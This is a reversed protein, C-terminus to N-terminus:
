VRPDMEDVPGHVVLELREAPRYRGAAHHLVRGALNPIRGEAIGFTAELARIVGGHSVVLVVAGTFTAVVEDLAALARTALPDDLEYGEPRRGDAIWGPWRLEIEDHTLGSWEGASRERLDDVVHIPGVGIAGGVIAATELARQQSSSVVVDLQGLKAAAEVAQWRGLDSLPPDAQGQWRGEANWTSQGHRILLLTTAAGTTV